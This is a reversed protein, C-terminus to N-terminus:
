HFHKAYNKTKVVASIPNKLKYSQNEKLGYKGNQLLSINFDGFIFKM